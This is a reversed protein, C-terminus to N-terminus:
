AAGRLPMPKFSNNPPLGHSWLAVFASRYAWALLLFYALTLLGFWATGNLMIHFLSFVLILPAFIVISLPATRHFLMLVGGAVLTVALIPDIFQADRLASNLAEAKPNAFPAATGSHVIRMLGAFLYFSAFVWRAIRLGWVKM